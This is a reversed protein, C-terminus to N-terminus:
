PERRHGLLMCIFEEAWPNDGGRSRLWELLSEKTLYVADVNEWREGVKARVYVGSEEYNKTRSIDAVLVM